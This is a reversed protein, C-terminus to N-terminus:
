EDTESVWYRSKPAKANSSKVSFVPFYIYTLCHALLALKLTLSGVVLMWWAGLASLTAQEISNRFGPEHSLSTIYRPKNNNPYNGCSSM